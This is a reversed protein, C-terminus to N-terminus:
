DDFRQFLGKPQLKWFFFDDGAVCEFRFKKFTRM